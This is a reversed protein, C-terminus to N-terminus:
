HSISEQDRSLMAATGLVSWAVLVIVPMLVVESVPFYMAGRLLTGAAGVAFLQGITGWVWPMFIAPVAMGSIPNAILLNIGTALGVGRLGLLTGMGAVSSGIAFIGLSFAGTIAWFDNPVVKFWTHLILFIVMGALISYTTLAALRRWRDGAAKLLLVAGITGGLVLPLGLQAVDFSASYAPVVDTKKLTIKPPQVGAPAKQAALNNLGLELNTALNTIVGNTAAGNASATLAEPSASLIVAGFIKRHKMENIAEDRSSLVVLDVKGKANSEIAKTALAVQQKNGTIGIPVNRPAATKSPWLFALALIGVLVAGTFGILISKVWSSPTRNDQGDKKSM